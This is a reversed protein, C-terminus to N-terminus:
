NETITFEYMEEIGTEALVGSSEYGGESGDAVEQAIHRLQDRMSMAITSDDYGSHDTEVVIKVTLTKKM